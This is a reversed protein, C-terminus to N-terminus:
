ASTALPTVPHGILHETSADSSYSHGSGTVFKSRPRIVCLDLANLQRGM